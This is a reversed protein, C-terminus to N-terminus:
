LREMHQFPTKINQFPVSGLTIGSQPKQWGKFLSLKVLNYSKSYKGCVISVQSSVEGFTSTRFQWFWYMNKWYCTRAAPVLYVGTAPSFSSTFLTNWHHDTNGPGLVGGELPIFPHAVEFVRFFATSPSSLLWLLPSAPAALPHPSHLPTSPWAM